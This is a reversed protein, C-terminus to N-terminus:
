AEGVTPTYIFPMIDAVNAMVLEYFLAENRDQVHLTANRPQAGHERACPNLGACPVTEACPEGVPQLCPLLPVPRLSRLLEHM